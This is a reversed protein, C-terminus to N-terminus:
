FFLLLKRTFRKLLNVINDFESFEKATKSVNLSVACLRSACDQFFRIRMLLFGDMPRQTESETYTLFAAM